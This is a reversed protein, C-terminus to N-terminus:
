KQPEVPVPDSASNDVTVTRSSPARIVGILGVVIGGFGLAETYAQKSALIAMVTSLYCIAVLTYVYAKM